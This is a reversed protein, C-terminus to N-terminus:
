AEDAAADAEAAVDADAAEGVTSSEEGAGTEADSEALEADLAEQSIMQTVNVVLVDADTVLEVGSPLEVQGALIQTGARVGAVSVM